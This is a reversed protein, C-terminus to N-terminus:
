GMPGDTHATEGDAGFLAMCDELGAIVLPPRPRSRWGDVSMRFRQADRAVGQPALTTRGNEEYGLARSVANSAANDVFASTEAFRAALGDFAFGLVAARMEKGLGRGQYERGLWSGTHVTRHIRFEDGGISQTGIVVGDLDAILNLEWHEPTWNARCAWHHQLFNHEFAPSPVVSWAIGFPMEDPPHIGTRALDMLEVIEDDIPLRLVVRETRLRLRFLPWADALSTVAAMPARRYVGGM